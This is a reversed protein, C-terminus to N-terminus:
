RSPRTPGLPVPQNAQDELGRPGESRLPHNAANDHSTKTPSFSDRTGGDKVLENVPGPFKVLENYQDVLNSWTTAINPIIMRIRMRIRFQM